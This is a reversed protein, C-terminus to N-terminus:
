PAYVRLYSKAYGTNHWDQPPTCLLIARPDLGKYSGNISCRSDEVSLMHKSQLPCFVCEPVISTLCSHYCVRRSSHFLQSANERTEPGPRALLTASAPNPGWVCKRQDICHKFCKPFTEYFDLNGVKRLFVFLPDRADSFGCEQIPAMMRLETALTGKPSPM